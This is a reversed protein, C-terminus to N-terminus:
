WADPAPVADDRTATGEILGYPRDTAVYVEDPNDLGFPTLDVLFHHKNPLSLRIEALEADGDLVATGMAYLTHQLSHSYTGTFADVLADTAARYSADWDIGPPATHRWRADVDTALIREDTETLTTFRDTAFGRFQSDTTNLLTLGRVGSVVHTAHATTTVTALRQRTGDRAFSHDGLRRWGHEAIHVRAWTVTEVALFHAALTLAFTEVAAVGHERALAYVANKQADTTLVAANDGTTYAAAFDGALTVSVDLDRLRHRGTDRGAVQVLRVEAKGYRNAGLVIAM